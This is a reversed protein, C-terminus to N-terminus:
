GSSGRHPGRSTKSIQHLPMKDSKYEPVVIGIDAVTGEGLVTLADYGTALASNWRDAIKLRGNSEKEVAAFSVDKIFKTRMGGLPEHDSHSLTKEASAAAPLLFAALIMVLFKRTLHLSQMSDGDIHQSSHSWGWSATWLPLQADDYVIAFARCNGRAPTLSSDVVLFVGDAVATFETVRSSYEARVDFCSESALTAKGSVGIGKKCVIVQIALAKLSRRWEERSGTRYLAKISV